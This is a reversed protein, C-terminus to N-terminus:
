IQQMHGRRSMDCKLLRSEIGLIQLRLQTEMAKHRCVSMPSAAKVYENLKISRAVAEHPSEVMLIIM